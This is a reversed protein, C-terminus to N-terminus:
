AGGQTYLKPDTPTQGSPDWVYVPDGENAWNFLWHSDGLSMNVCGHSQPYGFMARWYAGHLAREADFYMTWPVDELYYYDSKNAEFAGSMTETLKKKYIKFLGPRTYYPKMGSAILTAFLLRGDEYVTLTQEYLNVTIWRNGEVGEPPNPDVLVQRIYRREVWENLGVMYWNTGNAEKVDYIQVVKTQPLVQGTEAAQSSPAVRPHAEEVIWGFSNRPNQRFVLGQFTSYDAPSARMWEGSNVQVFHHGEFDARHTFAVYLLKGAQLLRTPNQGTAASEVTAYFAAQEPPTVSIRAYKISIENLAPDPSTAPLAQEPFTLGLKALNTLTSSPGLPMCDVPDQLYADPYCLPLGAFPEPTEDVPSQARVPVANSIMSLGVMLTLVTLLFKNMLDGQQKLYILDDVGCLEL